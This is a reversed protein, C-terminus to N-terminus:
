SLNGLLNRMSNEVQDILTIGSKLERNLDDLVEILKRTVRYLRTDLNSFNVMNQRYSVMEERTDIAFRKIENVIEMADLVYLEIDRDFGALLTATKDCCDIATAFHIQFSSMEFEISKRLSEVRGALQNCIRKAKKRAQVTNPIDIRITKETMNFTYDSSDYIEEIIRDYIEKLKKFSEGGKEVLDQFGEEEILEIHDIRQRMRKNKKCFDLVRISKKISKDKRYQIQRTLHMRLYKSFVEWSDFSWHLTGLGDLSYRFEKILAILIMDQIHGISDESKLVSNYPSSQFPNQFSM